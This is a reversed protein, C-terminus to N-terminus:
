EGDNSHAYLRMSPASWEGSSIMRATIVVSPLRVM